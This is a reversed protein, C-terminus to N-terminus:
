WSAARGCTPSTARRWSSSGTPTPSSQRWTAPSSARRATSASSSRCASAPGSWAASRAGTCSWWPTPARSAACRPASRMPSIARTPRRSSTPSPRPTPRRRSRTATPRWSTGSSASTRSSGTTSSRSTARHLGPAPPRQPREAPRPNGLAHPRPRDGRAAHSGRHGGPPQVLKGARKEVFMEGDEDVLAIGASDYGRYELRRLGEILIPGAERPGTYGVIGCM